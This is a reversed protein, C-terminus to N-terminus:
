WRGRDHYREAMIEWLRESNERLHAAYADRADDVTYGVSRLQEEWTGRDTWIADVIRAIVDDPADALADALRPDCKRLLERPPYSEAAEGLYEFARENIEDNSVHLLELLSDDDLQEISDVIADADDAANLYRSYATRCSAPINYM